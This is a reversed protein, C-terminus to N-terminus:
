KMEEQVSAIVPRISSQHHRTLWEFPTMVNQPDFLSGDPCHGIASVPFYSVKSFVSDLNNIANALGIDALYQRCIRDRADELNAYQNQNAAYEAKIKVPGIKRRIATLDTKSIVVAVPVSSMKRATRGSVESYKNIFHVILDDMSDDSFGSISATGSTTECERRVSRSSLPDIIIIIGDSYAFNLPNREYQENLIVEDPIDYIVIGDDSSRRSNNVISYDCVKDSPSKETKGTQYAKEFEMFSHIPFTTVTSVGTKKSAELYQHQFAAIFATKGSSNGGIMQINLSQVNAGALVNGCKPCFAKLKKRNAVSACPIFHGCSCKAFMIGTKGPRLKTHKAGCHPCEFVPLKFAAYCKSCHQTVLSLNDAISGILMVMLNLLGFTILLLLYVINIVFYVIVGILFRLLMEATGLIALPLFLLTSLFSVTKSPSKYNGLRYALGAFSVISWKRDFLYKHADGYIHRRQYQGSGSLFSIMLSSEPYPKWTNRNIVIAKVLSAVINIGAVSLVAILLLRVPYPVMDWYDYVRASLETLFESVRELEYLIDDVRM